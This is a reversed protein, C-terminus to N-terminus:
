GGVELILSELKIQDATFNRIGESLKETAMADENLAWRFLKEDVPGHREPTGANDSSLKQTLEGHDNKLEEMLHPSITLRDCGALQEIEGANRFSAGM